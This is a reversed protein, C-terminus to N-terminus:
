CQASVQSRHYVFETTSEGSVSASISPSISFSPSTSVSESTSVSPSISFKFAMDVFFLWIFDRIPPRTRKLTIM